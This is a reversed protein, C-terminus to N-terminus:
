SSLRIAFGIGLIAVTVAAPILLIQLLADRGSVHGTWTILGHELFDAFDPHEQPRARGEIRLLIAPVSLYVSLYVGCVGIMFVTDASGSFVLFLAGLIAVYSAVILVGLLPPLDPCALEPHAPPDTRTQGCGPRGERIRAPLDITPASAEAVLDRAILM